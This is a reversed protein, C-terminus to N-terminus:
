AARRERLDMARKVLAHGLAEEWGGGAGMITTTRPLGLHPMSRRLDEYRVPTLDEVACNSHECAKLVADAVAAYHRELPRAFPYWTGTDKAPPSSM